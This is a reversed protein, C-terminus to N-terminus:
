IVGMETLAALDDTSRHLLEGYVLRNYQGPAPAPRDGPSPFDTPFPLGALTFAAGGEFVAPRFFGREQLQPSRAVEDPSYVPSIAIRNAQCLAYAEEMTYDLLWQEISGRIEASHRAREFPDAFWAERSWAPDGMLRALNVIMYPELPWLAVYGDKCRMTGSIAMQGGGQRGGGAGGARTRVTGDHAYSDIDSRIIHMLAEQKSVQVRQGQGSVGCEYLAALAATAAQVAVLFESAHAGWRVPPREGFYPANILGTPQLYHAGSASQTTLPAAAFNSWPGDSGFPTIDIWVLKTNLGRFDAFTLGLEAAHPPPYDCIVADCMSVLERLLGQGVASRVDLTISFKGWDVYVAFGADPRAHRGTDIAVDDSTAARQLPADVTIVQAGLDALLRGCYPGCATEALELVRIGALPAPLAADTM